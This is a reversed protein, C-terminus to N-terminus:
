FIARPQAGFGRTKEVVIFAVLGLFYIQVKAMQSAEVHDCVAEPCVEESTRGSTARLVMLHTMQDVRGFAVVGVYGSSQLVEM